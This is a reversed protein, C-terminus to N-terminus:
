NHLLRSRAQSSGLSTDGGPDSSSDNGVRGSAARLTLLSIKMGDRFAELINVLCFRFHKGTVPAILRAADGGLSEEKPLTERSALVPVPEAEVGVESVPCCDCRNGM